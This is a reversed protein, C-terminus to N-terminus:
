TNQVLPLRVTANLGVRHGQLERNVLAIQGGLAQVIEHCIALGMGSGHHVDGASFPQYLRKALEASIGPGSDAICLSAQGGDAVLQVELVSGVPTQKIANHLLNRALERLMWDHALVPTPTTHIAFDIDKDALLPSLDLAVARVVESWDRVSANAQQRLQEVKALALMQNALTTARDVTANIELLAQRPEVDNRLASQVQTKLVALPTRLQHSADRVFRKQHDLLHQLRDMVQNTADVLPRLERPADPASLHTLDGEPRTQLLDSLKRVPRTARQVVLVVVLAILAILAAQHWLTDLLIQRALTHRLELTEAVQIVAMARGTDSAVPQLLVAVRVPEVGVTDDYFDVLASYTTRNPITGHWFPLEAFGSVMEGGLSSVRYFINSKNDAEFAELASYPVTSRLVSKEDYGDVDLQEGISKASALLTRDYAINIAALTQRYQNVSNIAVVALVPLLIGLLLTSRLSRTPRAPWNM